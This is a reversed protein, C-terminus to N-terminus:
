HLARAFTRGRLFEATGEPDDAILDEFAARIEDTLEPAPTWGPWSHVEIELVELDASVYFGSLMPLREFLEAVRSQLLAAHGSSDQATARDHIMAVEKMAQGDSQATPMDAM